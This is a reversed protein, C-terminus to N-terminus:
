KATYGADVPYWGATCFSAAESALFCIVEAIEEPRGPRPIMHLSEAFAQRQDPAVTTMGTETFGPGVCNVRIGRDAYDAAASRTLGRVAHKSTTYQAIGKQAAVSSASATNVIAGGGSKLMEPIEARMCYFVGDCNITMVRQYEELPMEHLLIRRPAVGANNVAVDLRGFAQVAAAVMEECAAPDSVDVEFAQAAAGIEAAVSAAGAGNKDCVLVQAGREALLVATAQGMGSAAGTV